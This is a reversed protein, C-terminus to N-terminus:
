PRDVFFTRTFAAEGLRRDGRMRIITVDHPDKTGGRKSPRLDSLFEVTLKPTATFYAKLRALFAADPCRPTLRCSDGEDVLSLITGGPKLPARDVFIGYYEANPDNPDVVLNAPPKDDVWRVTTPLGTTARARPSVFTITKDVKFAFQSTNCSALVLGLACAVAPAALRRRM